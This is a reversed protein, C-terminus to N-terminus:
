GPVATLDLETLQNAFCALVQLCSPLKPLHGDSLNSDMGRLCMARIRLGPVWNFDRLPLVEFNWVLSVISGHEVSFTIASEFSSVDVPKDIYGTPPYIIFFIM